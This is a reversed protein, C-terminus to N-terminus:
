EWKQTRANWFEPVVKKPNSRTATPRLVNPMNVM